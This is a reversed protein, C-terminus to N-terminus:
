CWAAMTDGAAEEETQRVGIPAAGVLMSEATIRSYFTRWIFAKMEHGGQTKVSSLVTPTRPKTLTTELNM